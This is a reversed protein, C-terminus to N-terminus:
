CTDAVCMYDEFRTYHGLVSKILPLSSVLCAPYLDTLWTQLPYHHFTVRLMIRNFDLKEQLLLDSKVKTGVPEVSLTELVFVINQNSIYGPFLTGRLQVEIFVQTDFIGFAFLQAFKLHFLQNQM